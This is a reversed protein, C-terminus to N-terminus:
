LPGPPRPGPLGLGGTPIPSSRRGRCRWGSARAPATTVPCRRHTHDSVGPAM